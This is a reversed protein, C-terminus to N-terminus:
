AMPVWYSLFSNSSFHINPTLSCLSQNQVHRAQMGYLCVRTFVDSRYNSTLGLIWFLLQLCSLTSDLHSSMPNSMSHPSPLQLCFTPSMWLYPPSSPTCVPSFPFPFNWFYSPVWPTTKSFVLANNIKMSSHTLPIMHQLPSRSSPASTATNKHSQPFSHLLLLGILPYHGKSLTRLLLSSTCQRNLNWPRTHFPLWSTWFWLCLEKKRSHNDDSQQQKQRDPYRWQYRLNM